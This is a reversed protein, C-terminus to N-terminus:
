IGLQKRTLITRAGDRLKVLVRDGPLNDEVIGSGGGPMSIIANNRSLVISRDDDKGGNQRVENRTTQMITQTATGLDGHSDRLAREVLAEFTGHPHKMFADDMGDSYAAVVDDPQMDLFGLQNLQFDDTGVANTVVNRPPPLEEKRTLPHFHGKRVIGITSDGVNSPILKNNWMVFTAATTARQDGRAEALVRNNASILATGLLDMTQEETIQSAVNRSVIKEVESVASISAERGGVNGGVGDAVMGIAFGHGLNKFLATDENQPKKDAHESLAVGQISFKPHVEEAFVAAEVSTDPDM